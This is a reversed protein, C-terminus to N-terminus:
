IWVDMWGSDVASTVKHHELSWVRSRLYIAHTDHTRRPILRSEGIQGSAHQVPCCLHISRAFDLTSNKEENVCSRSRLHDQVNPTCSPDTGYWQLNRHSQYPIHGHKKSPFWDIASYGYINKVQFLYCSTSWRCCFPFGYQLKKM